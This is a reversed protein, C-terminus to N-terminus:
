VWETNFAYAQLQKQGFTVDKGGDDTPATGETHAEATVATDDVTPINIGEGSATNLVTFLDSSYMPGTAIMAKEIFNALETPVTYGGAASTATKQVRTPPWHM